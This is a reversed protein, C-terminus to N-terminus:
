EGVETELAAIKEQLGDRRTRLETMSEELEQIRGQAVAGGTAAEEMRATADQCAQDAAEKAPLTEEFSAMLKQQAAQLKAMRREVEELKSKVDEVTRSSDQLRTSAQEQEARAEELREGWHALEQQAKACGEEMSGMEAQIVTLKDRLEGLEAQKRHRAQGALSTAARTALEQAEEHRGAAAAEAARELLQQPSADEGGVDPDPAPAVEAEPPTSDNTDPETPASTVEATKDVVDPAVHGNGDADASADGEPPADPAPLAVLREEFAAIHRHMAEADVKLGADTMELAALLEDLVDMTLVWFHEGLAVQPYAATEVFQVLRGVFAGYEGLRQETSLEAVAGMIEVCQDRAREPLVRQQELSTQLLVLDEQLNEFDSLHFTPSPQSMLQVVGRYPDGLPPPVRVAHAILALM